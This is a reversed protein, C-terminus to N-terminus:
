VKCGAVKGSSICQNAASIILATGSTRNAPDVVTWYSYTQSLVDTACSSLSSLDAPNDCTITSQSQLISLILDNVKSKQTNVWQGPNGCYSFCNDLGAYATRLLNYTNQYNNKERIASITAVIAWVLFGVMLIGIIIVISMHNIIIESSSFAKM